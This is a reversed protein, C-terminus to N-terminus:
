SSLTLVNAWKLQSACETDETIEKPPLRQLSTNLTEKEIRTERMFEYTNLLCM